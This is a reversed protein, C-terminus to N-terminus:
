YYREELSSVLNMNELKKFEGRGLKEGWEYALHSWSFGNIHSFPIYIYSRRLLSAYFPPPFLRDGRYEFALMPWVKIFLQSKERGPRGMYRSNRHRWKGRYVHGRKALIRMSFHSNLHIECEFITGGTKHVRSLPFIPIEFHFNEKRYKSSICAFAHVYNSICFRNRICIRSGHSFSTFLFIM